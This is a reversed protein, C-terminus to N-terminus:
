NLTIPLSFLLFPEVLAWDWNELTWPTIFNFSTFNMETRVGIKQNIAYELGFGAQYQILRSSNPSANGESSENDGIQGNPLTLTEQYFQYGDWFRWSELSVEVFPSLRGWRWHKGLSAAMRIQRWFDEREVTLTGSSQPFIEQSQYRHQSYLFRLSLYWDARDYAPELRTAVGFPIGYNVTLSEFNRQWFGGTLGDVFETSLWPSIVPAVKLSFKTTPAALYPSALDTQRYYREFLNVLDKRNFRTAEILDPLWPSYGLKTILTRQYSTVKKRYVGSKGEYVTDITGGRLLKTFDEGSQIYFQEQAAYRTWLLRPEGGALIELFLYASDGVTIPI